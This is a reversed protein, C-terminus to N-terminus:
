RVVFAKKFRKMDGDPHYIEAYFVYVGTPLPRNNLGKGDWRIVGKQALLQNNCVEAVKLGNTSYVMARCRFGSKSTQYTISYDDAGFTFEPQNIFISENDTPSYQSNRNGPTAYGAAATASAWNSPDSSSKAPSIRELSVGKKSKIAADHWANSYPVEDIVSTDASNFLVITAGENNLTPLRCEVVADTRMVAYFDTVGSPTKTIVVYDDANLTSVTLDSLKYFTSLTADTKRTAIALGSLSLPRDSSNYLEIFEEAGEYPEPMIENIVIELPKVPIIIEAQSNAEGPTGGKEYVCLHWTNNAGREYSKGATANPYTMEDLMVGKSNKLGITKTTNALVPFKDVGLALSGAAAYIESGSKFLVAYTAAPLEVDPLPTDKSDYVFQWGKLYLTSATTNYIEVYETEPLGKEPLGNPNAMVENIIADGPQSNDPNVSVADASSKEGPTGGRPDTTLAWTGNSSREYSKAATAAPYTMEDIMAGQADKLGITESTNAIASPFTAIGLSLAGAAVIIERPSRYLVAYQGAALSVDPLPTDKGDYVFNWGSLSQAATSANFIEIYETEPLGKALLGVPNAMVETIIVDGPSAAWASLVSLTAVATMFSFSIFGRAKM